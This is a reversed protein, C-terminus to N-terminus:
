DITSELIASQLKSRVLFIGRSTLLFPLDVHQRVLARIVGFDDNSRRLHPRAHQPEGRRRRRPLLLLRGPRLTTALVVVIGWLGFKDAGRRPTKPSVARRAEEQSCAVLLQHSQRSFDPLPKPPM